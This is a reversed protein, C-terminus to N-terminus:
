DKLYYKTTFGPAPHYLDYKGEGFQGEWEASQTMIKQQLASLEEARDAPVECIIEDHVHFIPKMGAEVLQRVSDALCDRATAQVVNETLKGGFTKLRLWGKADTGMYTLQGNEVKTQYYTLWRGSPLRIFLNGDRYKVALNEMYLTQKSTMARRCAKELRDWYAVIHPNASRWKYVLEPYDDPNIKHGIDMAAMAGSGGGYGCALSAVKGRQRLDYNEHGKAITDIPVGFMQAATSEYIKGKGHFEKEAWEEHAMWASVRAEIASYDAVSLVHGEPAILATRLLQKFLDQLDDYLCEVQEWDGRKVMTRVADLEDLPVHNKPFNQTQIIRGAYRGTRNAGYFQLVGHVRGDSCCASLMRAYKTVSTASLRQRILLVERVEDNPANKILDPLTEKTVPVDPLGHKMLWPKLQSLSNPNDLGTLQKAQELQRALYQGNFEVISRCLEQDILIGNDNVVENIAYNQKEILFAESKNDYHIELFRAIARETVVDQKNYKKFLNWKEENHYWYNRTRGGNSKTPKCPKAFYNILMTGATDKQEELNLVKAVDKLSRPLGYMSAHVADCWWQEPELWQDQAIVGRKRLYRTLCVREFAANYAHKEVLPNMLDAIISPPIEEGMALDIVEVEDDDYAYAFLLIEFNPTDTYKYVGEKIENDSYTELDISLIRKNGTM